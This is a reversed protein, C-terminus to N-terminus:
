AIEDVTENLTERHPSKPLASLRTPVARSCRGRTGFTAKRNEERMADHARQHLRRRHFTGRHSQDGDFGLRDISCAVVVNDGAAIGLRTTSEIL